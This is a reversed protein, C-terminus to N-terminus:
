KPRGSVELLILRPQMQVFHGDAEAPSHRGISKLTRQAMHAFFRARSLDAIKDVM